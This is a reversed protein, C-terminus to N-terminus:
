PCGWLKLTQYLGQDITFPPQWGLTKQLHTSDVVLSGLLRQVIQRNLPLSRHIRQEVADGLSGAIRMFSPPLPLLYCSCNLINAIKRILEPTSLSQTDSILFVQNVAQPHHLILAIADVLNGVYILSRQNKVLGLPLPWGRQILKILREMNGPNRPGYILPSRLITWSMSSQAALNILLQEAQLKSRGYPTDPQCLSNETLPQNSTMTMAGVSSMFLFHKVGAQISQEVLNATGYTNVELYEAESDTAQDGLIHARAALHVVTDVGKLAHHWQTHSHISGVVVSKVWPLADNFTPNSSRLAAKVQWGKQHFTSILHSAVFGTAGTVLVSKM